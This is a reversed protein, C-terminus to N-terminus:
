PDAWLGDHAYARTLGILLSLKMAQAAVNVDSSLLSELEVLVSM